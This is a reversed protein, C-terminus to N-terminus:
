SRYYSFMKRLHEFNSALVQMNTQASEISQDLHAVTKLEFALGKMKEMIVLMKQDLDHGAYQLSEGYPLGENESNYDSLAVAVLLDDDNEQDILCNCANTFNLGIDFSSILGFLYVLSCGNAIFLEDDETTEEAEDVEKETEDENIPDSYSIMSPTSMVKLLSLICKQDSDDEM